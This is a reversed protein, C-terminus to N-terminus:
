FKGSLSVGFTRPQVVTVRAPGGLAATAMYASVDGRVDFLNRVFFQVKAPGVTAGARLDITVYDGLDYQPLNPNADFGANRDSVFRLTAGITPSLGEGSGLYDANIAATFKPVTPLRDGKQGGLDPSDAALRADQYAFAGTINVSRVPRATLTLEAGDIKAGGTNIYSNLGNRIGSILMDDWDIHYGAADISFTRDATEGRIGAEYSTLSDSRFTPPGLPAGTIPDFTVINPGGPRYGTAFRVYATAHPSFRYRANALYTTVGEHSRLTPVSPALIGTANQTYTQRNYAYRLGGTVDFKESLHVTVNGFAAVEKYTSPLNATLLDVPFLSGDANYGVLSSPALSKEDTYFGGVIWEITGSQSSSLRVEQTFKDTSVGGDVATSAVPLGFAGLLPVYLASADIRFRVDNTQYSTISTLTAPGFDYNLTGSVVRFRQDFPERLIRQQELDGTILQGDPTYDVQANGERHIDQAFGSLRISLRDTPQLLVDLRGGYINARGVNKEGRGVDDIFGGDRSYYGGARVAIKDTVLPASVAAAVNYSPDGKETISLGAQVSSEFESLNPGRTVYKLLGGMSSSGYLTGQPGRLVEIRELDFLGADLAVGANISFVTSGGYPVDDVYVGVTSAVDAGSTVGRLTIQNRGAGGNSSVTMAPITDAYDRLQTANLRALDDSTVATISQPVDILREVRRTATVVIETSEANEGAPQEASQAWVPM